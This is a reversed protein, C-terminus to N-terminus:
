FKIQIAIKRIMNTQGRYIQLNCFRYVYNVLKMVFDIAIVNIVENLIVIYIEHWTMGIKITSKQSENLYVTDGGRVINSNM